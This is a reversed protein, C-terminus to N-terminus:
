RFEQSPLGSRDVSRTTFVFKGERIAQKRTRQASVASAAPPHEPVDLVELVDPPPLVADCVSATFPCQGVDAVVRRPAPVAPVDHRVYASQAGDHQPQEPDPPSEHSAAAHMSPLHEEFLAPHAAVLELSTQRPVVLLEDDVVLLLPLVLLEDDDDLLLPLEM